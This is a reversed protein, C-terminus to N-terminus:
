PFSYSSIIYVHFSSHRAVCLLSTNSGLMGLSYLSMWTLPPVIGYWSIIYIGIELCWFMHVSYLIHIWTFFQKIKGKLFRLISLGYFQKRMKTTKEWVESVEALCITRLQYHSPKGYPLGPNLERSPVGLPPGEVSRFCHRICSRNEDSTICKDLQLNTV